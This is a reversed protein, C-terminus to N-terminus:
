GGHNQDSTLIKIIKSCIEATNDKFRQCIKTAEEYSPATLSVGVVPRGNDLYSLMISYQNEDVKDFRAIIDADRKMQHLCRSAARVAKERVSYPLHKQFLVVAEIGLPTPSLMRESDEYSETIHGSSLMESLATTMDFFEVLPEEFLMQHLASEPVPCDFYAIVYLILIKIETINTLMGPEPM